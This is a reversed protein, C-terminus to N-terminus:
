KEADRQEIFDILEKNSIMMAELKELARYDTLEGSRGLRRRDDETLGRAAAATTVASARRRADQSIDQQEDTIVTVRNMPPYSAVLMSSVWGSKDGASVKYWRRSQELVVLKTGKVVSTVQAAAFSPKEHIKAKASQVYVENPMAAILLLACVAVIVNLKKM